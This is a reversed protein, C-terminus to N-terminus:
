SPGAKYSLFGYRSLIIGNYSYSTFYHSDDDVGDGRKVEGNALQSGHGQKGATMSGASPGDDDLRDELAKKVAGQYAGFQDKLRALEEELGEVKARAERLATGGGGGGARASEGGGGDEGAELIEDIGCLLADDEVVPKLFEDDVFAARDLPTQPLGKNTRAYRRLYNICKVTEYFDLGLSTM